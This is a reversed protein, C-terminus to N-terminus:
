FLKKRMKKYSIAISVFIMFEFILFGPTPNIANTSSSNLDTDKPALVTVFISSSVTNNDWDNVILTYIYPNPRALLGDVNIKVNVLNNSDSKSQTTNDPFTITYNKPNDDEFSWEIYNETEGETYTIDGSIIVIKPLISILLETTFISFLGKKDFVIITYNYIGKELNEVSISITKSLSINGFEIETGNRFITYNEPDFDLIDWNLFNGTDGRIFKVFSEGSIIPPTPIDTSRLTVSGSGKWVKIFLIFNGSTSPTFSFSEIAGLGDTESAFAIVPEGYQDPDEEYIYVDVDLSSSMNLLFDFQTGATLSMQRGWIKTSYQSSSLSITQTSGITYKSSTLLALAADAQIEGWGEYIDKEGRDTGYTAWTSMLLYQKIKYVDTVSYNWNEYGGLAQVMLSAIGSVLPTSMSTGQLGTLDNNQFDNVVLNTIGVVDNDNTDAQLIAGQDSLGGPATLDPKGSNSALGPGESSYYTLRHLDDTAGVTIVSDLNGPNGIQNNELDGDNGAAVVTIVGANVLDNVATEVATIRDTVKCGSPSCPFGLSMSAVTVHYELKNTILWNIGDVLYSSLGDGVNNFVKIGVLKTEPAVGSFRTSTNLIASPPPITGYTFMDLRHNENGYVFMPWIQYTGIKLTDYNITFTNNTATSDSAVLYRDPDYLNLKTGETTGDGTGSKIFTYSL